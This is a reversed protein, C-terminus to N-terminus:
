LRDQLEEAYALVEEVMQRVGDPSFVENLMRYYEEVQERGVANYDHELRIGGARILTQNDPLFSARRVDAVFVSNGPAMDEIIEGLIFYLEDEIDYKLERDEQVDAVLEDVARGFGQNHVVMNVRAELTRDGGAFNVNLDGGIEALNNYRDIDGLLTHAQMELGSFDTDVDDWSGSDQTIYDMFEAAKEKRDYTDVIRADTKDVFAKVADWYKKKPIMNQKGRLQVIENEGADHEITVHPNDYEDRLSYMTSRRRSMRGCHSMRDGEVECEEKTLEYWYRGGGLEIFKRQDDVKLEINAKKSKSVAASLDDIGKLERYAYKDNKLYRILPEAETQFMDVHYMIEKKLHDLVEQKTRRDDLSKRVKKYVTLFSNISKADRLIDTLAGDIDNIERPTYTDPDKVEAKRVGFKRLVKTKQQYNMPDHFGNAWMNRFHPTFDFYKFYEGLYHQNKRNDPVIQELERVLWKPFGLNDLSEFLLKDIHEFIQKM